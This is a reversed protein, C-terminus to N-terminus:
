GLKVKLGLVLLFTSGLVPAENKKKTEEKKQATVLSSVSSVDRHRNSCGLHLGGPKAVTL